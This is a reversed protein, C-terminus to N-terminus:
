KYKKEISFQTKKFQKQQVKKDRERRDFYHM